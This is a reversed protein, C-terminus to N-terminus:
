GRTGGTVPCRVRHEPAVAVPEPVAVACAPEAVPCLRRYPCGTAPVADGLAVAPVPEEALLRRTYPHRPVAGAPLEEVVLGGYMVLVRQTLRRALPLDHTALLLAPGHERQVRLLLDLLRRRTPLDQSSTPEDAVLVRPRAALARALAVRQRQGGSLAHPRRGWLPEPLAVERLLDATRRATEAEGATGAARVAEAVADRCTQRPDLARYPNQFVLQVPRARDRRVPAGPWRVRGRRPRRLGALLLALSTKGGGSEGVLAVREGRRLVLSVDRVVDGGAGRRRPPRWHLGAAELVVEGGAPPAPPSSPPAAAEVLRRTLPHRPRRLLVAVPGGDVVRGGGLVVVRDATRRAVALDHTILLLGLGRRAVLDRLTALIGAAVLRDLNSTPEDAVLLEPGWALAMALLLRQCQGGSLQHPYRSLLGEAATLGAAALLAAAARGRRAPPVGAAALCEALQDGTRWVPDLSAVPDQPLFGIRRGRGRAADLPRGDWLIRGGRRSGAPLLDLLALALTSKGSGTPGVLAVAEGRDLALDVGRLAPGAAGPYRVTVGELACLPSGSM